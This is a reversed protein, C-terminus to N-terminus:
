DKYYFSIYKSHEWPAFETILMDCIIRVVTKYSSVFMENQLLSFYPEYFNLSKGFWMSKLHCVDPKFGPKDLDSGLRIGEHWAAELLVM